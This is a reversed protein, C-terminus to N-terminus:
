AQENTHPEEVAAGGPALPRPQLEIHEEGPPHRSNDEWMEPSKHNEYIDQVTLFIIIFNKVLFVSIDQDLAHWLFLRISLFPLNVLFLRALTHLTRIVKAAKGEAYHTKSLTLLTMTPLLLNICSFAIISDELAFPLLIRTEQVFLIELQDVSDLVDLSVEGTVRELFHEKSSHPPAEHHTMVLLMFIVSSLAIVVKLLNPGFFNKEELFQATHKFLIAVKIILVLSYIFWIIYALPLEGGQRVAVLKRSAPTSQDEERRAYKNHKYSIVFSTIFVSIVIVDAIAWLSHFIGRDIVLYYNMIAGQLIIFGICFTRTLIGSINNCIITGVSPM